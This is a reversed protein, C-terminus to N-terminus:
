ASYRYATWYYVKANVAADTGITFGAEAGKVFTEAGVTGGHTPRTGPVATIGNSTLASTTGAAVQKIAHGNTMGKFWQHRINDTLNVIDIRDPIFGLRVTIAAGAGTYTGGQTDGQTAM